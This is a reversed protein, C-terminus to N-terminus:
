IRANSRLCLTMLHEGNWGFDVLRLGTFQYSIPSPWAIASNQRGHDAPSGSLIVSPHDVPDRIISRDLILELEGQLGARQASLSCAFVKRNASARGAGAIRSGISGNRNIADPRACLKEVATM